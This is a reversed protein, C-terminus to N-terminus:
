FIFFLFQFLYFNFYIFILFILFFFCRNHLSTILAILSTGFVNADFDLCYLDVILYWYIKEGNETTIFLNDFNILKSEDILTQLQSTISQSLSSPKGGGINEGCIGGM